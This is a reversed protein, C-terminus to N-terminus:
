IENALRIKFEPFIDKMKLLAEANGMADDVPHHTHKTTRLKKFSSRMNYTLGHFIDNLNRSSWGFINRGLFHHFYYNIFSYDFGNNDAIFIYQNTNLSQIWKEFKEMVISPEEFNLTEDRTFGSIKLADPIWQNSIPKLQGYFTHSLSPEVWVAGFCIMSYDGPIPGDSEVDVM